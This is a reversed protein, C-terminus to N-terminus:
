AIGYKKLLDSLAEEVLAQVTTEEKAALLKVDKAVEPEVHGGVFKRGQRSPPRKQESNTSSTSSM